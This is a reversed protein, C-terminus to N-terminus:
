RARVDGPVGRFGVGLLDRDERAEDQSREPLVHLRPDGGEDFAAEGEVAKEEVKEGRRGSM